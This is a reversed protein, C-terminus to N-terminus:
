AYSRSLGRLLSFLYYRLVTFVFYICCIIFNSTPFMFKENKKRKLYPVLVKGALMALIYGIYEALVVFNLGSVIRTLGGNRLFVVIVGAISVLLAFADSAITFSQDWSKLCRIGISLTFAHAAISLMSVAYARAELSFKESGKASGDSSSDEGTGKIDVTVINIWNCCGGLQSQSNQIRTQKKSM